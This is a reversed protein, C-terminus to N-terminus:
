AAVPLERISEGRVLMETELLRCEASNLRSTLALTRVLEGEKLSGSITAGRGLDTYYCVYAKGNIDVGLAYISTVTRWESLGNPALDGVRLSQVFERSPIFAEIIPM